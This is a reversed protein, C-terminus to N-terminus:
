VTKPIGEISEKLRKLVVVKATTEVVRVFQMRKKIRISPFLAYLFELKGRNNKGGRAIRRVIYPKNGVSIIFAPSPLRSYKRKGKQKTTARSTQGTRYKELLDGGPKWRKRIKGSTTKYAYKKLMKQPVSINKKLKAERVVGFEHEALFQLSKKPDFSGRLYIAAEFHGKSKLVRQSINKQNSTEPYCRVGKLLYQSKLDFTNMIHAQVARKCDIAANSVGDVIATPWLVGQLRKASRIFDSMDIQILKEKDVSSM